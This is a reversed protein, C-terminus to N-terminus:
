EISCAGYALYHIAAGRSSQEGERVRPPPHRGRPEPGRLFAPFAGTGHGQTWHSVLCHQSPTPKKRPPPGRSGESHPFPRSSTLTPTQPYLWYRFPRALSVFLSKQGRRPSSHNRSMGRERGLPQLEGQALQLRQWLSRNCRGRGDPPDSLPHDRSSSWAHSRVSERSTTMSSCCCVGM